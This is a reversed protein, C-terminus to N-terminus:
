FARVYSCMFSYLNFATSRSPSSTSCTSRGQIAKFGTSDKSGVGGSLEGARPVPIGPLDEYEEREGEFREFEETNLNKVQAKLEKL